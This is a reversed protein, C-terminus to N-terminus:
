VPNEFAYMEQELLPTLSPYSAELWESLRQLIDKLDKHYIAPEIRSPDPRFRGVDIFLPHNGIFGFNRYIRPDEDYIGKKCRSVITEIMGHICARISSLDNQAVLTQIRTFILEAKKQVIFEVQDLPILHSIGLKDIITLNKKLNDTKNLHLYILGTEEKLQEYALKYSTFDRNMKYLAKDLKKQRKRDLFGPLHTNYFYNYPKRIRHKFFKIVYKDDASAFAFCQGGCGIYHFPQSLIQDIELPAASTDWAPNYPLESYIRAVSFGDTKSNCFSATYYYLLTFFLFTFCFRLTKMM